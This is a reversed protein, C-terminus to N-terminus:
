RGWRRPGVGSTVFPVYGILFSIWGLDNLTQIIEASREDARYAATWWIIIPLIILLVASSHAAIQLHVAPAGLRGIAKM